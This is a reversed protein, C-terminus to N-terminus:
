NLSSSEIPAVFTVFSSKVGFWQIQTFECQFHFEQLLFDITLEANISDTNPEDNPITVCLLSDKMGSSAYISLRNGERLSKFYNEHVTCLIDLAYWGFEKAKELVKYQVKSWSPNHLSIYFPNTCSQWIWVHLWIKSSPDIFYMIFLFTM